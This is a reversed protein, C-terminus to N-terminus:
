AFPCQGGCMSQVFYFIVVAAFGLVIITSYVNSICELRRQWVNNNWGITHLSSWFGHCLHFWLAALWVLYLVVYIPQSFTYQILGAGDTPSLTKGGLEFHHVGLLENLQMKAWFNFMHLALGLLVIVGLVMMNQSAWEIGKPKNAIAYADNGRAKRNQNTLILAYVIHVIFLLALGKTAVLAYWNAGLFECIANYADASFLAVLNMSMHFTLFLILALGSISMVLKRGISSKILWSM